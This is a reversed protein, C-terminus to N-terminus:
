NELPELSLVLLTKTTRPITAAPATIAKFTYRLLARNIDINNNNM